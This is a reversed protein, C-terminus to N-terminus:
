NPVALGPPYKLGASPLFSTLGSTQKSKFFVDNAATLDSLHEPCVSHSGAAVPTLGTATLHPM